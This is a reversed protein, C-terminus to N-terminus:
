CPGSASATRKPLSTCSTASGHNSQGTRDPRGKQYRSLLHMLPGLSLAMMLQPLFSAKSPQSTSKSTPIRCASLAPFSPRFIRQPSTQCKVAAWIKASGTLSKPTSTTSSRAPNPTIPPFGDPLTPPFRSKRVKKECGRSKWASTHRAPQLRKPSHPAMFSSAKIDVPM